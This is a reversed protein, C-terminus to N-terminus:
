ALVEELNLRGLNRHRAFATLSLLGLAQLVLSTVSGPRYASSALLLLAFGLSCRKKGIFSFALALAGMTTLVIIPAKPLTTFWLGSISALIHRYDDYYIFALFFVAGAFLIPCLLLKRNKPPSITLVLGGWAALLASDAADRAFTLPASQAGYGMELLVRWSLPLAGAAAVLALPGRLRLPIPSLAVRVATIVYLFALASGALGLSWSTHALANVALLGVFALHSLALIEDLLPIKKTQHGKVTGPIMLILMVTAAVLAARDLFPALRFQLDPLGALANPLDLQHLISGCEVVLFRGLALTATLWILQLRLTGAFSRTM